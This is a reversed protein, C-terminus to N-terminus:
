TVLEKLSIQSGITIGLICIVGIYKEMSYQM